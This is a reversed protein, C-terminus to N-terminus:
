QKYVSNRSRKVLKSRIMDYIDAQEGSPGVRHQSKRKVGVTKNAGELHAARAFRKWSAENFAQISSVAFPMLDVRPVRRTLKGPLARLFVIHEATVWTNLEADLIRKSMSITTHYAANLRAHMQENRTTGVAMWSEFQPSLSSRYKVNNM